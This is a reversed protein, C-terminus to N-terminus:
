GLSRRWVQLTVDPVPQWDREPQRQYGLRAYFAAASANTEVVSLVVALFGEASAVDHVETMLRAGVGSGQADPAVALMRVELEDPAAIEAYATGPRGLTVTGVVTGQREAVWLDADAARGAADALTERYPDSAGFTLVPEYAAVTLHGISILEDSRAPRITPV